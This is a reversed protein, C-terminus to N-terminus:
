LDHPAPLVPLLNGVFGWAAILFRACRSRLEFELLQTSAVIVIARRVRQAIVARIM